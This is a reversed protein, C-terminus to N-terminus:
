DGGVGRLKDLASDFAAVDDDTIEKRGVGKLGSVVDTGVRAEREKARRAMEEQSYPNTVEENQGLEDNAYLKWEDDDEAYGMTGKIQSARKHRVYAVCGLVTILAAAVLVLIVVVVVIYWVFSPVVVSAEGTSPFDGTQVIVASKEGEGISTLAAVQVLYNQRAQLDTIRLTNNLNTLSIYLEEKLYINYGRLIGNLVEPPGWTCNLTNFQVFVQFDVCKGPLDEQTLAVAMESYPGMGAENVLAVSYEYPTFPTLDSMTMSMTLDDPSAHDKVLMEQMMYSVNPNQFEKYKLVVSQILGNWQMAPPPSWSVQVSTSSLPVATVVPAGSPEISSTKLNLVSPVMSDGVDNYMVLMFQYEVGPYLESVEASSDQISLTENGYVNLGEPYISVWSLKFGMLIGNAHEPIDWRVYLSDNMAQTMKFGTPQPPAAAGTLALSDLSYPGAGASNVAAVGFGYTKYPTLDMIVYSMTTPEDIMKMMYTDPEQVSDDVEWYRISYGTLEGNQYIEPPPKWSVTVSMEDLTVATVNLPAVAPVAELTTEQAIVPDSQGISTKAWLFFEYEVNEQLDTVNYTTQLGNTLEFQETDVIRAHLATYNLIYSLEGNPKSPILWNLAVATSSIATARFLRPQTPLDEETTVTQPSSYSGTGNVNRVAIRFQYQTNPELGLFDHTYTHAAIEASIQQQGVPGYLISYGTIVGTAEMNTVPAWTITVETANELLGIIAPTVMPTASATRFSHPLSGPSNGADNTAHVVIVYDRYPKLGTIDYSHRDDPTTAPATMSLVNSDGVENYNVVYQTVTLQHGETSPPNWEVHLSTSSLAWVRVNGPADDPAQGSTIVTEEDGYPGAGESNVAAVRIVYATAEQLTNLTATTAPYAVDMTQMSASNDSPVYSVRYFTLTESNFFSRDLPLWTVTVSPQSSDAMVTSIEVGARPASALTMFTERDSFPGIGRWNRVAIQVDYSTYPMLGTVMLEQTADVDLIRPNYRGFLAYRDKPYVKVITRTLQGNHSDEPPITWTIKASTSTIDAQPFDIEQGPLTPVAVQSRASVWASFPGMGASTSAAVRVYYTTYANAGNITFSTQTPLLEMTTYVSQDTGYHITYGSIIGNRRNWPPWNWKAKLETDSLASISVGQPAASPAAERTTVAIWSSYPGVGARTRAAVRFRYITYPKLGTFHRTLEVGDTNFQKYSQWRERWRIVYGTIVGRQNVPAPPSWTM